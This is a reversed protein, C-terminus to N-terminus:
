KVGFREIQNTAMVVSISFKRFLKISDDEFTCTILVDM